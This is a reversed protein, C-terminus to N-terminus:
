QDEEQAPDNVEDTPEPMDPAHPIEPAPVNINDPPITRTPRRRPPVPRARRQPVAGPNQNQIQRGPQPVIPPRVVPRSQSQVGKNERLRVEVKEDNGMLVVKDEHIELVTYGSITDNLRYVKTSRSDSAELIATKNDNLIVTGFLKPPAPLPPKEAAKREVSPATRSPRFLDMSSIVEFANEDYARDKHEVPVFEEPVVGSGDEIPMEASYELVHYFKNGLVGIILILLLNLLFYNRIM